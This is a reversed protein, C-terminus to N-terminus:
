WGMENRLWDAFEEDSSFMTKWIDSPRHGGQDLVGAKEKDSKSLGAGGEEKSQAMWEMVCRNGRHAAKHLATHGQGQVEVFSVGHTNHLYSCLKRIDDASKSITM